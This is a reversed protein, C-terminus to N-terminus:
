NMGSATRALDIAPLSPLERMMVNERALLAMEARLRDTTTPEELLRQRDRLDLVMAAAVLYSLLRPDASVGLMQASEVAGTGAVAARYGDFRESVARALLPADVDGDDEAMWEVEACAYPTGEDVLRLVRFRADGNTM